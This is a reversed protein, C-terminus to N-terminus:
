VTHRRPLARGPAGDDVNSAEEPEGPEQVNLCPDCVGQEGQALLRDCLGCRAVQTEDRRVEAACVACFCHPGHQLAIVRVERECGDCWM